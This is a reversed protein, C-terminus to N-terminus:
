MGVYQKRKQQWEVYSYGAYRCTKNKGRCEKCLLSRALPLDLDLLNYGDYRFREVWWRCSHGPKYRTKKAPNPDTKAAIRHSLIKCEEDLSQKRRKFAPVEEESFSMELSERQRKGHDNLTM